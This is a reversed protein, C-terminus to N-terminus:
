NREEKGDKRVSMNIEKGKSVIGLFNERSENEGVNILDPVDVPLM